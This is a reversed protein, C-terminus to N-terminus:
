LRGHRWIAIALLLGLIGAFLFGALGLVSTQPMYNVFFEALRGPLITDLYPPVRAHLILASGIVIASVIISFALRNTARDMERAFGEFDRVHHQL